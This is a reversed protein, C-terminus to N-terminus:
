LRPLISVKESINEPQIIREVEEGTLQHVTIQYWVFDLEPHGIIPCTINLSEGENVRLTEHTRDINGNSLQIKPPVSLTIYM